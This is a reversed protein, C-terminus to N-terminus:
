VYFFFTIKLSTGELMIVFPLKNIESQALNSWLSLIVFCYIMDTIGLKM